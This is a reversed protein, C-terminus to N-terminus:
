RVEWGEEDRLELFEKESIEDLSSYDGIDDLYQEYYEYEEGNYPDLGGGGELYDYAELACNWVFDLDNATEDDFQLLFEDDFGCYGNSMEAKFYRM